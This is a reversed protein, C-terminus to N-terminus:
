RFYSHVLMMKLLYIMTWKRFPDNEMAVNDSALLSLVLGHRGGAIAITHSLSIYGILVEVPCFFM